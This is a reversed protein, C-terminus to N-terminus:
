LIIGKEQCLTELAHVLAQTEQVPVINTPCGENLHPAFYQTRRSAEDPLVVLSNCFFAAMASLYSSAPVFLDATAMGQVTSLLPTQRHVNITMTTQPSSFAKDIRRCFANERDVTFVRETYVDVTLHLPLQLNLSELCRSIEEMTRIPHTISNAQKWDDACYEEPCRIHIAIRLHHNQSDSDVVDAHGDGNVIAERKWALCRSQM